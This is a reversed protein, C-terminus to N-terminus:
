WIRRRETAAMQRLTYAKHVSRLKALEASERWKALAILGISITPVAALAAIILPNSFM